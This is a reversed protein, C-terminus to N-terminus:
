KWVSEVSVAAGVTEGIGAGERGCERVETERADSGCAVRAARVEWVFRWRMLREVESGMKLM